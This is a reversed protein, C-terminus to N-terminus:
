KALQHIPDVNTLKQMSYGAFGSSLEVIERPAIVERPLKGAILREVKQRKVALNANPKFIKVVLDSQYNFIEAEGGEALKTLKRLQPKTLKM